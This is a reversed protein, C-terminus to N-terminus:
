RMCSGQRWLEQADSEGVASDKCEEAAVPM